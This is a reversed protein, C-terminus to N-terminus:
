RAPQDQQAPERARTRVSDRREREANRIATVDLPHISDIRCPIPMGGGGLPLVRAVRAHVSGFHESLSIAHAFDLSPCGGKFELLYAQNPRTWVALAHDGLPTWGNLNGFYRFSDVPEGAHARYLALREADRLGAGTACAALSVVAMALLFRKM